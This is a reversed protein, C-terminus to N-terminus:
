PQNSIIFLYRLCYGVFQELLHLHITPNHSFRCLFITTSLPNKPSDLNTAREEQGRSVEQQHITAPDLPCLLV